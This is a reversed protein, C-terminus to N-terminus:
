MESERLVALLGTGARVTGMSNNVMAVAGEGAALLFGQRAPGQPLHCLQGATRFM